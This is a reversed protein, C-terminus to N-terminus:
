DLESRWAGVQKRSVSAKPNGYRAQLYSVLDAIQGDDFKSAFSPMSAGHSGFSNRAGELLMMVLNRPSSDGVTSEDAMSPYIDTVPVASSGHCNACYLDYIRAGPMRDLAGPPLARPIDRAASRSVKDSTRVPPVTRLYAVVAQLDEETLHRTSNAVVLGMSGAAWAKGPAKGISLYRKLDDDSWAGIGAVPDPTINYASWGDVLGGALFKGPETAESFRGRPTHCDGCHAVAQVLYAGRNWQASRQPDEQFRWDSVYLWNWVGILSRFSYPFSMRNSPPVNRVAPLSFLYAKIALVDTRSMLRYSTYPFAPYLYQGNRGVGQQMARVFDDDSWVGIGTDHDPTINPAYLTGMPLRMVLGGALPPGGPATHCSACGGLQALYEGHAIATADQAQCVKSHTVGALFLAALVLAGARALWGTALPGANLRAAETQWEKRHPCELM